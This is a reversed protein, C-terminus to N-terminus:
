SVARFVGCRYAVPATRATDSIVGDELVVFTDRAARQGVAVGLRRQEVEDLSSLDAATLRRALDGRRFVANNLDRVLDSARGDVIADVRRLAWRSWLLAADVSMEAQEPFIQPARPRGHGTGHTSRLRNIAIASSKASQAIDRLPPQSAM